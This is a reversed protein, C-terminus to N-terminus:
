QILQYFETNRHISNIENKTKQKKKDITKELQVCLAPALSKAERTRM